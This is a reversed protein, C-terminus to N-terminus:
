EFKKGVTNGPWDDTRFTGLPLNASNFVNADTPADAWAYRVSVPKKGEPHFVVIQNGNVIQAQAYRFVKDEGAIEFGRVYGFKDKAVLGDATDDFTIVASAAEWTVSRFAPSRAPGTQGYVLDLANLALRKGVDQKNTPHIDDANGIDTTVAMRTYPLQLTLTQAERLEAWLSGENSSQNRGYSSLQVFLFPFEDQWLRRWDQIMAPFSARYQHARVANSEGQYWLAGRLPYPALPHIMANYLTTGLNNCLHEFHFPESWAPMLRWGDGALSIKEGALDLHLDSNNGHLGM